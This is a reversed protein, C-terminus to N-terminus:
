YLVIEERLNLNKMYLVFVDLEMMVYELIFMGLCKSTLFSM